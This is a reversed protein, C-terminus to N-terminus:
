RNITGLRRGETARRPIVKRGQRKSSGPTNDGPAPPGSIAVSRSTFMANLPKRLRTHVPPDNNAMNNYLLSGRAAVTGGSQAAFLPMAEDISKRFRPGRLVFEVDEYATVLWAELGTRAYAM